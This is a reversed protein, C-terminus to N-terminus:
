EHSDWGIGQGGEMVVPAPERAVMGRITATDREVKEIDAIQAVIEDETITWGSEKRLGTVLRHKLRQYVRMARGEDGLVDVALALALRTSAPGGDGWGYGDGALGPLLPSIQAGEGVMVVVGLAPGLEGKYIKM